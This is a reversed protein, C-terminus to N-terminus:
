CSGLRNRVHVPAVAAPGITLSLRPYKAACVTSAVVGSHVSAQIDVTHAADGGLFCGICLVRTPPYRSSGSRKIFLDSNILRQDARGCDIGLHRLTIRTGGMAQVGDQHVHPIKALCRVSGGGITLDHAGEAIKVGDAVSTTVTLKGIHGTCGSELHVADGGHRGGPYASTMTVKVSALDVPSDCVWEENVLSVSPLRPAAHHRPRHAAKPRTGLHAAELAALVAAPRHSVKVQRPAAASPLALAAAAAAASLAVVLLTLGKAVFM